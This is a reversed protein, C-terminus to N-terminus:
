KESQIDKPKRARLLKAVSAFDAPDFVKDARMNQLRKVSCGVQRSLDLYTFTFQKPHGGKGRPPAAVPDRPAGITSRWREVRIDGGGLGTYMRGCNCGQKGGETLNKLSSRLRRGCNCRSGGGSFVGVVVLRDGVQEPGEDDREVHQEM